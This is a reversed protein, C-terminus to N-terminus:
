GSRRTFWLIKYDCIFVSINDFCILFSNMRIRLFMIHHWFIKFFLFFKSSNSTAKSFDFKCISPIESVLHGPSFMIFVLRPLKNRWIPFLKPYLPTSKRIFFIWWPFIVSILATLSLSAISCSLSSFLLNINM